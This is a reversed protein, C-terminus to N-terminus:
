LSWFGPDFTAKFILDPAKNVTYGTADFANYLGAGAGPANIFFNGTTASTAGTTQIV